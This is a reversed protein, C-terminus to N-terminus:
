IKQTVKAELYTAFAKRVEVNLFRGLLAQNSKVVVPKYAFNRGIWSEDRGKEDVLITGTWHMWGKSREFAIRRSLEALAKSRGRVERSDLPMMEMAPTRPRPFFKSINVIDPQVENILETTRAFAEDSEGPFGCIVDTAITIEPIKTRFSQVITKFDEVSYLRNM